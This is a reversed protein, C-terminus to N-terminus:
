IILEKNCSLCKGNLEEEHECKVKNYDFNGKSKTMTFGCDCSYRYLSPLYLRGKSVKKETMGQGCDICIEM